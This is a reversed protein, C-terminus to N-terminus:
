KQVEKKTPDPLPMWHSIRNVKSYSSWKGDKINRWALKLQGLDVVIVDVGLEPLKEAIPIWNM